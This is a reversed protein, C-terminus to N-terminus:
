KAGRYTTCATIQKVIYKLRKKINM